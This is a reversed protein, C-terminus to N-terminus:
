YKQIECYWTRRFNGVTDNNNQKGEGEKNWDNKNMWM